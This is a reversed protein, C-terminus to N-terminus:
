VPSILLIFSILPLVASVKIKRQGCLSCLKDSASISDEKASVLQMFAKRFVAVESIYKGGIKLTLGCSKGIDQLKEIIESEIKAQNKELSAKIIKLHGQEETSFMLKRKSVSNFWGIIKIPLTKKIDTIIATPSYNSGRSSGQRYIYRGAGGANM